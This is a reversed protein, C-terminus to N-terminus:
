GMRKERAEFFKPQDIKTKEFDTPIVSKITKMEFDIDFVMDKLEWKRMIGVADYREKLKETMKQAQEQISNIEDSSYGREKLSSMEKEFGKIGEAKETLFLFKGDLEVKGIPKVCPLNFEHALEMIHYEYFADGSHRVESKTINVRKAIVSVEENQSNRWVPFEKVATPDESIEGSEKYKIEGSKVNKGEREFYEFPATKFNDPVFLSFEPKIEIQIKPEEQAM